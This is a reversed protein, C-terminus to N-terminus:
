SYLWLQVVCYINMIVKLAIWAIMLPILKAIRLMIVSFITKATEIPFILRMAM